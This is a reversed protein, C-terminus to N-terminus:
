RPPVYTLFPGLYELIERNAETRGHLSMDYTIGRVSWRLIVHGELLSFDNRGASERCVELFAPVDQVFTAGIVRAGGRGGPPCFYNPYAVRLRPLDATRYALILLHSGHLQDAAGQYDPPIAFHQQELVFMGELSCPGLAEYLPACRPPADGFGHTPLLQPCPVTFGQETAARRCQRALLRSTPELYIGEVVRDILPPLALSYGASSAEASTAFCRDPRVTLDPFSPHNPPYYHGGIPFAAYQSELPCLYVGGLDLPAKGPGEVSRSPTPSPLQASPRALWLIGWGALLGAGVLSWRRM